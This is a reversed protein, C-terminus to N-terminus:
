IRIKLGVSVQAALSDYVYVFLFTSYIPMKILSLNQEEPWIDARSFMKRPRSVRPRFFGLLISVMTLKIHFAVNSHSHNDKLYYVIYLPIDKPHKTKLVEPRYDFGYQACSRIIQFTGLRSMTPYSRQPSLFIHKVPNLM